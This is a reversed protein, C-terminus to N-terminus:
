FHLIGLAFATAFMCCALIFLPFWSKKVHTGLEAKALGVALFVTPLMPTCINTGQQGIMMAISMEMEPIGFEAGVSAILPVLGYYFSDADFCLHIISSLPMMIFMLYHGMFRPILSLLLRTMEELMPTENLVGVFVGAAFMTSAILLAAPAVKNLMKEQEKVGRYNLGLALALGIMFVPTSPLKFVFLSVLLVLTLAINMWTKGGIKGLVIPEPGAGGTEAGAEGNMAKVIRRKERVGMIASFILALVIGAVQLPILAQWLANVDMELVNAMRATVGGWPVMNLMIYSAGTITLLTYESMGMRKYIPLFAPITVLFTTATAGDLHALMAVISTCICIAVASNGSVKVLRDILPDFVKLESMLSFYCVSFCFLVGNASTTKVGASAFTMIEAPNYGACLAAVFPVIVFIISPLFKNRFLFFIMAFVMLYGLIGYYM